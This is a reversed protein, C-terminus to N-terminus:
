QQVLPEVYNSPLLGYKGTCQVRGVIWLDNLVKTDVIIDGVSLSCASSAFMQLLLMGVIVELWLIHRFMTTNFSTIVKQLLCRMKRLLLITMSPLIASIVQPQVPLHLHSPLYNNPTFPCKNPVCTYTPSQKSSSQLNFQMKKKSLLKYWQWTALNNMEQTAGNDQQGSVEKVFNYISDTLDHVTGNVSQKFIGHKRYQKEKLINHLTILDNKVKTYKLLRHKGHM